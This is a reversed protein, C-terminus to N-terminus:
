INNQLWLETVYSKNNDPHPYLFKISDEPSSIYAKRSVIKCKVINDKVSIPFITFNKDRYNYEALRKYAVEPNQSELNMLGFMVSWGISSKSDEMPVVNIFNDFNMYNTKNM